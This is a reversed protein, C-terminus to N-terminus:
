LFPKPRLRLAFSPPLDALVRERCQGALGPLWGRVVLRRWRSHALSRQLLPLAASPSPARSLAASPSPPVASPLSRGWSWTRVGGSVTLRVLRGGVACTVARRRSLRSLQGRVAVDARRRVRPARFGRKDGGCQMAVGTSAAAHGGCNPHAV